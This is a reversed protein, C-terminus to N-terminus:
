GNYVGAAVISKIAAYFKDTQRKRSPPRQIRANAFPQM